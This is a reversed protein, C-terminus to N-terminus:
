HTKTVKALHQPRDPNRGRARALAEVMPYFSQVAAIPDLDEHGTPALPLWLPTAPDVSGEPAALLVQAGRARMAEALQLLGAQAPGRPAFVLLMLLSQALYRLCVVLLLPYSLTLTKALADQSSLLLGAALILLIALGPRSHESLIM